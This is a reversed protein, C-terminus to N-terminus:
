YMGKVQCKRGEGHNSCFGSSDIAGKKCDISEIDILNQHQYSLSSSSLSSSLSSTLSTLSQLPSIKSISINDNNDFM